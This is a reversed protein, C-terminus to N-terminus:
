RRAWQRRIDAAQGVAQFVVAALPAGLYSAVGL